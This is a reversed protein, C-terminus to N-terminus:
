NLEHKWPKKKLQIVESGVELDLGFWNCWSLVIINNQFVSPPDLILIILAAPARAQFTEVLLKRVTGLGSGEAVQWWSGLNWDAM